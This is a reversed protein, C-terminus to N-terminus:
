TEVPMIIESVTQRVEREAAEIRQQSAGRKLDEKM